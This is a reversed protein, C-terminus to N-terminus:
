VIQQYIKVTEAACKSWRFEKARELGAQSFQQRLNFNQLLSLIAQCLEDQNRPDIMIGADGVVEPLSSTNSTIVPVGCQMAELPPLGFGEYFSPYVFLSAGSYIASLDEDPVYGTLIIKEKLNSNSDITQFIEDYLWGKAGVLVLSTDTLERQLLLQHFCKILHSLNKRPELTSLALIYKEEPLGYKQQILKIQELNTERYFNKSAALHTIFVRNESMKTIQCFDKKTSKSICIVWDKYINISNVADQFAQRTGADFLEPKLIPIMDYITIVRAKAKIQDLHPLAFFLSHYVDFNETIKKQKALDVFCSLFTAQLKRKLRNSFSKSHNNHIDKLIHIYTQTSIQAFEWADVKRNWLDAREQFYQLTLVAENFSSYSTFKSEIETQILMEEILSEIVRFIGTKAASHISGIGLNSVEYLIKM